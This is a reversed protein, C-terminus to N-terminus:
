GISILLITVFLISLWVNFNLLIRVHFGFVEILDDPVEFAAVSVSLSLSELDLMLIHEGLLM